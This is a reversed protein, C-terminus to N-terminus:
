NKEAVRVVEGRLTELTVPKCLVPLEVSDLFKQFQSQVDLGVIFVFRRALSPNSREVTAYWLDGEVRSMQLDCVVADLHHELVFKLALAGDPVITAEYGKAELTEKLPWALPIDDDVILVHKKRPTGNSTEM